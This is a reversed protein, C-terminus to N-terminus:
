HGTAHMAVYLSILAIVISIITLLELRRQVITNAVAQRLEASAHIGATTAAMDRQLQSAQTKLNDRLAPILEAPDRNPRVPEPCRTLDETYHPVGFAFRPLSQTFDELDATVTSADLGDSILYRDLQQADRVIRRRRARRPPQGARDRLESLGQAYLQLLCTAAWRAVLASQQDAYRQTLYWATQRDPNEERPQAADSRRAAAIAMFRREDRRAGAVFAWGPLDAARWVTSTFHTLGVPALSLHNSTFPAQDKTLLIRVTPQKTTPASNFRGPFKGTLWRRCAEERASILAECALHKQDIARRWTWFMRHARPRAWPLHSRLQGLPGDVCVRFDAAESQYDARLLSSLDGASETLTFTAVVLTLSATPFHLYVWAADVGDPLEPDFGGLGFNGPRRVSGLNIWGGTGGATRGVSLAAVWEQREGPSGEPFRALGDYLASITSPTFAETLVLGGLHVEEGPPLRSEENEREDSTVWAARDTETEQQLSRLSRRHRWGRRIRRETVEVEQRPDAQGDPEATQTDGANAM